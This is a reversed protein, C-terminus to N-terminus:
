GTTIQGPENFEVGQHLKIDKGDVLGRAVSNLDVRGEKQKVNRKVLAKEKYYKDVVSPINKAFAVLTSEVSIVWGMAYQDARRIKNKRKGRLKKYYDQRSVACKRRLVTFAYNASEAAHEVGVFVVQNDYTLYYRVGLTTATIRMLGLIWRPPKLTSRGTKSTSEKVQAFEVEKESVAYKDMLAQATKLALAAEAPSNSSGLRMCKIIKNIAKEKEM